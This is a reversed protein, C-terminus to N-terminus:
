RGTRREITTEPSLGLQAWRAPDERELVARPCLGVLEARAIRGGEGLEAVVQDYLESPRTRDLDIINCSVQVLPGVELGLARVSGSRVLAAIRRAESIGVGELYLNWALLLPRQGVCSAGWRPDPTGPGLDPALDTFARRRIEPLTRTTGDALPGYLFVPVGLEALHAAAEDRLRVARDAQVASLAVFPVVDLVGLRPHVGEHGRLDLRELTTECLRRTDLALTAPDNVLTLVSRHHFPDSHRDRLSTGAASELAALTSADRGEAVNIVCEFM